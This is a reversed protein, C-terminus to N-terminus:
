DNRPHHDLARSGIRALFRIKQESTLEKTFRSKAADIWRCPRPGYDTLVRVLLPGPHALARCITAELDDPGAIELYDVGWGKALAAYDLRALITATTRRYAQKQLTQMYHYAQDDLVFFKVPLNERAATSIEMATMLFCGDGTLTVVQRGPHARQAGLAAPISWGMSQNDTPNFYTRPQRVTFAEAAWHETMTVDVFALTDPCTARRLALVFAMPDVGCRAYLKAHEKADDCKWKRIHEVLSPDAQRRVCDAQELLKALFVGADAHVCVETKVVVGLNHANADVQIVRHSPIAYFATSVESYRVGIALVLDVGKFANEATHTGQPGYGWGVALPHCEDIVGKGSVSTAVPAQLLEAVRMLDASCDMCGQGAYIGIRLRRNGLVNLACAFAGEDFPVERLGPPPCHFKATEILLNYPVVVATPGPEEFVALRFAAHVAGPIDAATQVAFVGKTVQQLLAAQPLSHVQFPRNKDGNAVDGVIAVIPISDLLAEGLGSLSNTVGPGPVVAIVGPRGTSRAYGDAMCAASFEHTVLLYPLGRSKMEDWLENEQAGPIGFVCDAGCALLTEVLARAGTLSGNVWGTERHKAEATDPLVAPLAALAGAAAKLATRRTVAFDM